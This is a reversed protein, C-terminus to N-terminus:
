AQNPPIPAAIRDQKCKPDRGEETSEQATCFFALRRPHTRTRAAGPAQRV